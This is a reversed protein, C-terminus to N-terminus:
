LVFAFLASVIFLGLWLKFDHRFVKAGDLPDLPLLNFVALYWNISSVLTFPLYGTLSYLITFVLGIVVNSAPGAAAILGEPNGYFLRKGRYPNGFTYACTFLVAGPAAFVFRGMTILALFLALALGMPWLSYEAMCGFWRAVERHALEHFVFGLGVAVFSWLFLDMWGYILFRIGFAVSLVVWSLLLAPIGYAWKSSITPRVYM